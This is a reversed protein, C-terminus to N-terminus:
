WQSAHFFDILVEWCREECPEGAAIFDLSRKGAAGVQTFADSKQDANAISAELERRLEILLETERERFARADNWNSVQIGIFVGVVVIVFELAVAFWNQDRVHDIVRRLLM